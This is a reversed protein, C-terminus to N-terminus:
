LSPPLTSAILERLGVPDRATRSNRYGRILAAEQAYDGLTFVPLDKAQRDQPDSHVAHASTFIIVDAPKIPTVKIAAVRSVPVALTRLGEHEFSKADRYCYPASRTIWLLRPRFAVAM